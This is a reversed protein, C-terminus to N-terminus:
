VASQGISDDHVHNIVVSNMCSNIHRTMMFDPMSYWSDM